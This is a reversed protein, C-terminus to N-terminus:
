VMPLPACDSQPLQGSGIYLEWKRPSDRLKAKVSGGGGGWVCVYVGGKKKPPLLPLICVVVGLIMSCPYLNMRLLLELEKVCCKMYYM